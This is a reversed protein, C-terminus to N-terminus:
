SEGEWKGLTRLFAECRQAATAHSIYVAGALKLAANYATWFGPRLSQGIIEMEHCANLDNLYDPLCGIPNPECGGHGDDVIECVYGCIVTRGCAEAIAIKQKEPNM